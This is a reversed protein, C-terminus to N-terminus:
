DKNSSSGQHHLPKKVRKTNKMYGTENLVEVVRHKTVPLSLEAVIEAASHKGKRGLELIRNRDRNTLKTNGTTKLKVGYNEGKNVCNNVVTASRGIRRAIERNSLACDKLKLVIKREAETLFTNRPM